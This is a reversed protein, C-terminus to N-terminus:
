SAAVARFGPIEAVSPGVLATLVDPLVAMIPLGAEAVLARSRGGAVRVLRAFTDDMMEGIGLALLTPSAPLGTRCLSQLAASWDDNNASGDSVLIVVPRDLHRDEQALREWDGRLLDEMYEFASRYNTGGGAWLTPMHVEDLDSLPVATSASESFRVV